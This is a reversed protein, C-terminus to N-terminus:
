VEAQVSAPTDVRMELSARTTTSYAGGKECFAGPTCKTDEEPASSNLDRMLIIPKSLWHGLQSCVLVVYEAKDIHFHSTRDIKQAQTAKSDNLPAYYQPV